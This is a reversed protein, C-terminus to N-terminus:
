PESVTATNKSSTLTGVRGPANAFARGMATGSAYASRSASTGSSSLTFPGIATQSAGVATNSSSDTVLWEIDFVGGIGTGCTTVSNSLTTTCHNNTFSSGLAVDIRANTSTIQVNSNPILGWGTDTFSRTFVCTETINGFQDIEFHCSESTPDFGWIEYFMFTDTSGNMQLLNIRGGGLHDTFQVEASRGHGKAIFATIISKIKM